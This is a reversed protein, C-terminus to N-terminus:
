NSNKKKVSEDFTEDLDFNKTNLIKKAGRITFHQNKLLEYIERLWLIQSDISNTKKKSEKPGSEKYQWHAAVGIEATQDMESTRIQVEILRGDSGFVTTHISQYGNRKPRAIYDKFREQFPNYKQHIVGLAAYCEEVKDVIIRIAFM